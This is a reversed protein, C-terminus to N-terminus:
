HTRADMTSIGSASSSAVVNAQTVLCYPNIIEILHRPSKLTQRHHLVLNNLKNFYLSFSFSIITVIRLNIKVPKAAAAKQASPADASVITATERVVGM